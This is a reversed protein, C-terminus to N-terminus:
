PVSVSFLHADTCFAKRTQERPIHGLTHTHTHATIIAESTSYKNSDPVRIMKITSTVIITFVACCRLLM